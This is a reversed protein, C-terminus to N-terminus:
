VRREAEELAERFTSFGDQGYLDRAIAEVRKRRTALGSHKVAQRDARAIVKRDDSTKGGAGRHCHIHAPRWNEMESKGGIAKPVLDEVDWPEGPAIKRSCIHCQGNADRFIQAKEIETPKRRPTTLATSRM